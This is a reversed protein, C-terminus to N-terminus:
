GEWCDYGYSTTNEATFSSDYTGVSYSELWGTLDYEWYEATGDPNVKYELRGYEDYQMDTVEVDEQDNM